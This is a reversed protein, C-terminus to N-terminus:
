KKNQSSALSTIKRESDIECIYHHKETCPVDNLIGAELKGGVYMSGCAENDKFNNPEGPYWGSYGADNMSQGHVTIWARHEGWARMGLLATGKPRQERILMWLDEAEADSNIVALHGGDTVCRKYAESWTLRQHSPKYCSGTRNNLVYELDATGCDNLKEVGEERRCVFSHRESCPVATVERYKDMVVCTHAGQVDPESAWNLKEIRSLPTGEMSQYEDAAYINSIGTFMPERKVLFNSIVEAMNEDLPSALIAGEGHCRLVAEEWSTPMRHFKLWGVDKHFTYDYRFNNQNLCSILTVKCLIILLVCSYLCRNM